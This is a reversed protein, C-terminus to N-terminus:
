PLQRPAVGPASPRLRMDAPIDYSCGSRRDQPRVEILCEVDRDERGRRPVRLDPPVPPLLGSQEAERARLECAAEGLESISGSTRETEMITRREPRSTRIVGVRLLRFIREWPRAGAHPRRLFAEVAALVQPALPDGADLGFLALRDAPDSLAGFLSVFQDSLDAELIQEGLLLVSIDEASRFGGARIADGLRSSPTPAPRSGLLEGGASPTPLPTGAPLQSRVLGTLIEARDASLKQNHAETAEPSAYGSITVVSGGAAVEAKVATLSDTGRAQLSSDEAPTTANLRFYYRHEHPVEVDIERPVERETPPIDHYCTYRKTPPPCLCQFCDERRVEPGSLPLRLEVGTSVNGGGGSVTWCLRRNGGFMDVCAAGTGTPTSSLADAVQIEATIPGLRAGLNLDLVDGSNAGLRHLFDATVFVRWEGGQFVVQARGGVGQGGSVNSGLVELVARGGVNRGNVNIEFGIRATGTPPPGGALFSSLNSELQGFVDTTTTGRCHRYAIALADMDPNHFVGERVDPVKRCECPILKRIVHVKEEGGGPVPLHALDTRLAQPEDPTRRLVASGSAPIVGPLHSGSAVADAVRDAEIEGPDDLRGIELSPQLATGKQQLTHTLEHALLRRGSQTSPAFRGAGFVVNNGVSYALANVAKASEAARADTHVRVNSFDHGFRPEMFARTTTDLPQGPSRLVEPVIAPVGAPASAIGQRQLVRPEKLCEACKNGAIAHSGCGCKRQLVGTRVPAFQSDTSLNVQSQIRM